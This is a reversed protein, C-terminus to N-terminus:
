ARITRELAVRFAPPHIAPYRNLEPEIQEFFSLLRDREVLGSNIMNQVDLHDLEHGREIKALAQSYFDYHHFSLKGERTIFPSRDRWGPLPPIFDSPSALEVNVHFSEKLRPIASFLAGSEPVIQLDVDLTSERWGLVVASAGGTIYVRGEATAERALARMFERLRPETLRERM